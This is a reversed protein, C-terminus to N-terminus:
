VPCPKLIAGTIPFSNLSIAVSRIVDYSMWANLIFRKKGFVSAFAFSYVLINISNSVYVSFMIDKLIYKGDWLLHFIEPSNSKIYYVFLWPTTFDLTM